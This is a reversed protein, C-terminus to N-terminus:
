TWSRSLGWQSCRALNGQGESAGPAQEFEDENQHHWGVMEAETTGEEQRLDKGTDPDKGTLRSKM